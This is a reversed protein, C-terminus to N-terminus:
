AEAFIMDAEPKVTNGRESSAATWVKPPRGADTRAILVFATDTRGKGAAKIRQVMEDAHVLQKGGLIDAV